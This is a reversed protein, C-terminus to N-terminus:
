IKIGTWGWEYIDLGDGFQASQGFQISKAGYWASYIFKINPLFIKEKTKQSGLVSKTSIEGRRMRWQDISQLLRTRKSFWASFWFDYLMDFFWGWADVPFFPILLPHHNEIYLKLKESQFFDNQYYSQIRM